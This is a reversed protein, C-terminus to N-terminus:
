FFNGSVFINFLLLVTPEESQQVQIGSTAFFKPVFPKQRSEIMQKRTTRTNQGLYSLKKPQDNVEEQEFEKVFASIVM